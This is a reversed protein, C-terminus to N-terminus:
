QLMANRKIFDCVSDPILSISDIGESLLFDAFEPIDSPGQGCIGIKVGARKCATIAMKILRKVAPHTENGIHTLSGSDRDLGLTLQTLDNSGISFGDVLKCFEDACLANSPIECMLYVELDHKGRELGFERMTDLTLQCEDVTRCFPLMVRTNTLGMEERVRAIAICELEFASRFEPSYYRSCGRFGMMPNEEQPEFLNGGLLDRYENSKFDSFRVIVPRPYFTAAIQAIGHSLRSVYWERVTEYGRARGRIRDALAADITDINLVARPHVGITNAIIFEERALGVGAVPYKHYAFVNDPNGVNMMICKQLDTAPLSELDTSTSTYPLIGEYIYGTAGLSCCVTVAQGDLLTRTASDCGVVAPKGMERSVIAAHSTRGGKDTVIAAAKKMLPEFTPDTYETLLVDGVKFEAAAPSEMSAVHRIRGTGIAQGVAIGTCLTRAAHASLKHEWFTTQNAKRSHITEPRAQVIYLRGDTGDIAWEVDVPCWRGYQDCYFDEIAVVWRALKLAQADTLCFSSHEAESTNITLTRQAANAAQAYVMKHSKEGLTKNILAAEHTNLTPKFALYEDPKIQGGVILEGLGFAGNICVINQFGTDPDLSFAVGSCGLDSRVMKQICISIRVQAVFGMAHRYSIARDTYLSAFCAVIYQLVNDIGCVNLYTDQQGAFSADPLDEATGSSRVAVDVETTAYRASFRSYYSSITKILSKPLKASMIRHRIDAGCAMLESVDDIRTVAIRERIWNELGNNTIFAHYAQSTVVFGSPVDCKDKLNQIMAGLSANKGGVLELEDLGTEDLWKVLVDTMGIKYSCFCPTIKMTMKMTMKM